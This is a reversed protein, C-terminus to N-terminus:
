ACMCRVGCSQISWSRPTDCVWMTWICMYICIHSIERKRVCVYVCVRESKDCVWMTWICMYICIHSIEREFVYMCVSERESTDCMLMTWAYDWLSSIYHANYHWVCVNVNNMCVEWLSATKTLTTKTTGCVWMSMAWVYMECLRQSRQKQLAVCECQCQGYMCRVYDKHANNKYHCMWM